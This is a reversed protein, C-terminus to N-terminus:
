YEIEVMGVTLDDSGTGMLVLSGADGGVIVIPQVVLTDTATGIWLTDTVPAVNGLTDAELPYFYVFFEGFVLEEQDAEHDDDADANYFGVTLTDANFNAVHAVSITDAVPTTYYWRERHTVFRDGGGTTDAVYITGVFETPIALTDVLTDGQINFYHTGADITVYDSAEGFDLTGANQGDMQVTAQGAGPLAHFFRIMARFEPLPPAETPLKVCSVVLIAVFVISLLGAYLHRREM